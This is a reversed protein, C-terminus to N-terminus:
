FDSARDTQAVRGSQLSCYVLMVLLCLQKFGSPGLPSEALLGASNNFARVSKVDTEIAIPLVTLSCLDGLPKAIQRNNVRLLALQKGARVHDCDVVSVM